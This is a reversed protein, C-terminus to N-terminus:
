LIFFFKLRAYQHRIFLYYLTDQSRPPMLLSVGNLLHARVAVDFMRKPHFYFYFFSDDARSLMAQMWGHCFFFRRTPHLGLIQKMLFCFKARLQPTGILSLVMNLM